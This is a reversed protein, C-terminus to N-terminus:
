SASVFLARGDVVRPTFSVTCFCGDAVSVRLSRLVSVENDAGARDKDSMDKVDIQKM